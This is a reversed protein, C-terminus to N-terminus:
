HQPYMMRIPRQQKQFELLSPHLDMLRPLDSYNLTVMPRVTLRPLDSYNPTVMPRVTLMLSDWYNLTVMPRVTLM